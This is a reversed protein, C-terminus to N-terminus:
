SVVHYGLWRAMQCSTVVSPGRAASKASIAHDSASGYQTVSSMAILNASTNGWRRTAFHYTTLGITVSTGFTFLPLAVYDPDFDLQMMAGLNVMPAILYIAVTAMSPLNVDMWRGGVYGLAILVYLPFINLALTAILDSM